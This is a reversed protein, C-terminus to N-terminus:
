IDTSDNKYDFPCDGKYDEIAPDQAKLFTYAQEIPNSADLAAIGFYTDYDDGSCTIKAFQSGKFRIYNGNTKETADKYLSVHVQMRKELRNDLMGTVKHYSNTVVLKNEPDTYTIQLAM